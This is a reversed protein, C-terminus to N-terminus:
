KNCTLSYVFCLNKNWIKNTVYMYCVTQSNLTRSFRWFHEKQWFHTRKQGLSDWKLSFYAHKSHSLVHVNDKLPFYEPRLILFHDFLSNKKTISMLKFLIFWCILWIVKSKDRNTKIGKKCVGLLDLWSVM